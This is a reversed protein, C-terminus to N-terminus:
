RQRHPKPFVRHKALKCMVGQETLAASRQYQGAFHPAKFELGLLDQCETPGTAEADYMSRMEPYAEHMMALGAAARGLRGCVAISDGATAGARTIPERGDLEGIAAVDHIVGIETKGQSVGALVITWAPIGNVFNTTGDIPDIVWIM